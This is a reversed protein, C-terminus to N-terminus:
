CCLVNSLNREAIVNGKKGSKQMDKQLVKKVWFYMGRKIHFQFRKDLGKEIAKERNNETCQCRVLHIGIIKALPIFFIV